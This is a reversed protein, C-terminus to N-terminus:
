RPLGCAERLESRSRRPTAGRGRFAFSLRLRAGAVLSRAATALAVYAKASRASYHLVAELARDRLAAAAAFSTGAALRADYVEVLVFTRAERRLAEEIDPRRDRGALYLLRGPPAREPLASALERATRFVPRLARLGAREAAAATRAGVVMAPLGTLENRSEAHLLTLAHASAAIVGGYPARTRSSPLRGEDIAAIEILPAVVAEHGIRALSRATRAWAAERPSAGAGEHAM